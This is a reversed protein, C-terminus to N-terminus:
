FLKTFLKLLKGDFLQYRVQFGSKTVIPEWTAKVTNPSVVSVVSVLVDTMFFPVYITILNKKLNLNHEFNHM